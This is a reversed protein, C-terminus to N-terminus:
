RRIFKTQKKINSTGCNTCLNINNYLAYAEDYTLEKKKLYKNLKNHMIFSWYFLPSVHENIYEFPTHENIYEMAHKRCNSCPLDKLLM